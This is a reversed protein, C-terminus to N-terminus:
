HKEHKMHHNDEEMINKKVTTMLKMEGAHQFKLTLGVQEGAKAPKKLNILMIHFGGPEIEVSSNAPVSISEVQEMSMLEGERVVTHMEAIEAISTKIEILRDEKSSQNHLVMYAASNKSNPPVARIWAKEIKIGSKIESREEKIMSHIKANEPKSLSNKSDILKQIDTILQDLQEGTKYKGRLRSEKDILFVSLNHKFLYGAASKGEQRFYAAGYKKAVKFIEIKSGTLGLFTPHFYALYEKLRKPNDREPDISIFLTQTEKADEGLKKMLRELHNLTLPCIDPCHTFGFFMLVIKGQFDHLNVRAGHHGMLTFDGGMKEFIPLELENALASNHIHSMLPLGGTLLSVLFAIFLIKWFNRLGEM